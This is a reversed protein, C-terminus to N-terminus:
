GILPLNHPLRCQGSRCIDENVSAVNASAVLESEALESRALERQLGAGGRGSRRIGISTAFVNLANAPGLV